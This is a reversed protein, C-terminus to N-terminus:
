RLIEIMNEPRREDVVEGSIDHVSSPEGRKSTFRDDITTSVVSVEPLLSAEAQARQTASSTGEDAFVQSAALAFACAVIGKKGKMIVGKIITITLFQPRITLIPIRQPFTVHHRAAIRRAVIRRM